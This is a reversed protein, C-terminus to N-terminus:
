LLAVTSSIRQKISKCRLSRKFDAEISFRIIEQLRSREDDNLNAEDEKLEVLTSLEDALASPDVSETETTMPPLWSVASAEDDAGEGQQDDGGYKVEDTSENIQLRKAPPPALDPSSHESSRVGATAAFVDVFTL